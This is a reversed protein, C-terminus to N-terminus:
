RVSTITYLNEHMAVCRISVFTQHTQNQKGMVSHLSCLFYPFTRIKLEKIAHLIVLSHTNQDTRITTKVHKAGQMCVTTRNPKLSKHILRTHTMFWLNKMDESIRNGANQACCVIDMKLPASFTVSVSLRSKYLHTHRRIQISTHALAHLGIDPWGHGCRNTMNASLRRCSGRHQTSVSDERGSEM